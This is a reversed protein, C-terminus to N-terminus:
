QVDSMTPRTLCPTRQSRQVNAHWILHSGPHHQKLREVFNLTPKYQVHSKHKGNISEEVKSKIGDEKKVRGDEEKEM